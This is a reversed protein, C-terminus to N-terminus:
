FHDLITELEFFRAGKVLVIDREEIINKIFHIVEEKTACHFVKRNAEHWIDKFIKMEEGICIVTDVKNLAYKAIKEHWEKSITGLERMESLVAIKKGKTQPISDLASKVSVPPANYCDVIFTIDNKIITQLRRDPLKLQNVALQIENINLGLNIAIALAGCLNKFSHKGLISPLSFSYTQKDPTHLVMTKSQLELYYDATSDDISYTFSPFKKSKIVADHQLTDKALISLVLNQSDFIECKAAAIDNLSNFNVFHSYDIATLMAIHPPAIKILQEIDGKHTMGMELVIWEDDDNTHNIVTIPLGVKSNYNEITASVKYKSSLITQLFEKSTTKGVSGTVAIIKTKRRQLITHTMQQLALLVNDVKILAFNKDTFKSEKSVVAGIAGKKKADEIFDHGDVKLGELAFYLQGEKLKRTDCSIESFPLSINTNQFIKPFQNINFKAMFQNTHLKTKLTNVISNKLIISL